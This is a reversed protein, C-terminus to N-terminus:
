VGLPADHSIQRLLVRWVPKALGGVIWLTVGTMAEIEVMILLARVCFAQVPDHLVM